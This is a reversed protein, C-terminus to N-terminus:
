SGHVVCDGAGRPTRWAERGRIEAIRERCRAYADFALLALEDIRKDTAPEHGEAGALVERLLFVFRVAEAATFDQVARIRVITEIAPDVRASNMKGLIEVVLITLAERFNHGVPNRFPDEQQLLFQATQPPYSELIRRLWQEVITDTSKV